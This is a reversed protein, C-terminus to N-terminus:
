VKRTKGMSGLALHCTRSGLCSRMCQQESVSCHGQECCALPAPVAGVTAAAAGRAEFDSKAIRQSHAPQAYAIRLAGPV